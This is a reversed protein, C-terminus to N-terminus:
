QGTVVQDLCPFHRNGGAVVLLTDSRRAIQARDHIKGRAGVRAGGGHQNQHRQEIEQGAEEVNRRDVAVLRAERLGGLLHDLVAVIDVDSELVLHAVLLRDADIPQLGARHRRCAREAHCLRQRRDPEVPNRGQDAGDPGNEQGIPRCEGEDGAAGGQQGGQHHCARDQETELRPEGGGVGHQQGGHDGRHSRQRADIQRLLARPQPGTRGPRQRRYEPGRERDPNQQFAREDEHNDAERDQRQDGDVAARIPQQRQLRQDPHRPNGRQHQGPEDRDDAPCVIGEDGLREAVVENRFQVAALLTMARRRPGIEHEKPQHEKRARHQGAQGRRRDPRRPALGARFEQQGPQHWGPENQFQHHRLQRM